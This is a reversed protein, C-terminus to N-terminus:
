AIRRIAATLRALGSAPAGAALSQWDAHVFLAGSKGPKAANLAASARLLDLRAAAAVLRALPRAWAPLVISLASLGGVSEIPEGNGRHGASTDALLVASIPEGYHPQPEADAMFGVSSMRLEADALLRVQRVGLSALAGDDQVDLAVHWEADENTGRQPLRVALTDAEAQLQAVLENMADPAPLALDEPATRLLMRRMDGVPLMRSPWLFTLADVGYLVHREGTEEDQEELDLEALALWQLWVLDFQGYAADHIDVMWDRSGLLGADAVYALMAIDALPVAVARDADGAVDGGPSQMEALTDSLADYEEPGRSRFFLLEEETALRLMVVLEDRGRTEGNREFFADIVDIVCGPRWLMRAFQALADARHWAHRPLLWEPLLPLEDDRKRLDDASWHLMTHAFGATDPLDQDSFTAPPLRGCVALFARAAASAVERPQHMTQIAGYLAAAIGADIAVGQEAMRDILDRLALLGDLERRWYFRVVLAGELSKPAAAGEPRASLLLEVFGAYTRIPVWEGGIPELDAGELAVGDVPEPSSYEDAFDRVSYCMLREVADEAALATAADDLTPHEFQEGDVYIAIFARADGIVTSMAGHTKYLFDALLDDKSKSM